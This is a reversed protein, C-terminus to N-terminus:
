TVMGEHTEERWFEDWDGNAKLIRLNIMAEALDSRWWAGPKKMRQQIINRHTSEIKGSGIPLGQELAKDYAFQTERNEIYRICDRLGKHDAHHEQLKKLEESVKGIRGKKLDTKAKEMWELRGEGFIDAAASMYDCLHFFDVMFNMQSGFVREMQERVWIAGDGLGHVKTKNGFGVRKAIVALGDGVLDVSGHAVMYLWDIKGVQQLATLRYEKWVLKKRKRCDGIGERMEVVPVMSGDSEAILQSAEASNQTKSWNFEQARKAHKEAIQRITENCLEVGYHEKLKKASEAFSCDAGLDCVARQLKQSCSKNTVKARKLFPRNRKKDQLFCQEDV